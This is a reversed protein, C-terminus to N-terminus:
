CRLQQRYYLEEIRCSRDCDCAILLVIAIVVAVTELAVIAALVFEAVLAGVTFSVDFSVLVVVAALVLLVSTRTAHKIQVQMGREGNEAGPKTLMACERGNAECGEGGKTAAMIAALPARRVSGVDARLKNRKRQEHM